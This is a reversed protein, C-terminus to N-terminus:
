GACDDQDDGIRLSDDIESEQLLDSLIYAVETEYLFEDVSM